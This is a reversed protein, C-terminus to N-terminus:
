RGAGELRALARGAAMVQADSVAPSLVAAVDTESLGARAAARRLDDDAVDVGLGARAALRRRAAIQLPAAARVPERTRVLTAAMADVYARRPPPLERELVEPPGLRRGKAWMTTVVGALAVVLAWKWRVPVAALGKAPGYGHPAEAFAVPRGAEGVAALGFAANDATALLSNHWPTADAVAVIRGRGLVAVVALTGDPGALIPLAAGGGEVEFSATGDSIVTGVGAVEPVPALPRAPGAARDSGTPGAGTLGGVLEAAGGGATVLRGGSRVFRDMAATEARTPATVDVLILTSGPDLAARDLGTRLRTVPHGGDSVLEAFAALGDGSTAYSSSRRGGPGSGGTVAALGALAVNLGVVAAVAGIAWRAWPRRAHWWAVAPHPHATM